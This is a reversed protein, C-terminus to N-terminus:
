VPAGFLSVVPRSTALSTLSRALESSFDGSAMLFPQVLEPFIRWIVFYILIGIKFEPAIAVFPNDGVSGAGTGPRPARYARPM